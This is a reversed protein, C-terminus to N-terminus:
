AADTTRAELLREVYKALVDVEVNVADGPERVGLTTEAHTTPIIAVSFTEEALGAVTLSVGDITISGKEVVYRALDPPLAFDYTWDEGVPRVDTVETTGDVHGQVVHGDFRGDVALARELNVGGGVELDGLTTRALTEEALFVSFADADRGEVTLCAGSVSVSEGDELDAAFPARIRLRRGDATADVATVAGTAEVIGTFM